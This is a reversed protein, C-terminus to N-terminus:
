NSRIERWKTGVSGEAVQTGAEDCYLGNKVKSFPSGEVGARNLLANYFVKASKYKGAKYLSKMYPMAVTSWSPKRDRHKQAPMGAVPADPVAAGAVGVADFWAQVHPSPTEGQAALWAAFAPAAICHFDKDGYVPAAGYVPETVDGGWMPRSAYGKFVKQHHTVVQATVITSPLEGSALAANLGQLFAQTLRKGSIDGLTYPRQLVAIREPKLTEPWGAAHEEKTFHRGLLAM